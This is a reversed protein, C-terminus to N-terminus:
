ATSNNLLERTLMETGLGISVQWPVSFTDFVSEANRVM